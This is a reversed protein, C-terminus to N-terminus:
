RSATTSGSDTAKGDPATNVGRFRHWAQAMRAWPGKRPASKARLEAMAPVEAPKGDRQSVLALNTLAAPNRRNYSLAIELEKRAEAYQGAEILVAAMNSHATAPDAVSQLREVAEVRSSDDLAAALNNSAVVSHPNIKLAVRLEEAAEKKRNERLLCYGLNNHLDDRQPALALAKRYAAEGSKWDETEDNLLGLWAWASVGAEPRHATFASLVKAGEAARGTERLMKALAVHAEDSEPARECALRCHEIAVETFGLKQYHKALELRTALDLPDADLRARLVKVEYDGDGQDVANITQREVAYQQASPPTLGAQRHAACSVTLVAAGALFVPFARM